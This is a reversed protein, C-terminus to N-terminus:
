SPIARRTWRLEVERRSVHAIQRVHKREDLAARCSGAMRTIGALGDGRGIMLLDFATRWLGRAFMRISANKLLMAIRNERCHRGVFDIGHKDSSAQYRHRVTATSVYRTSFGALRLRWALDVDELYMFFRRDFVGSPLRVQDLASRRYLAAGATPGFIEASAANGDVREGFNRDRATGDAFLQIGTSNLREPEEKFVLTPQFAVVDPTAKRGEELLRALANAELIADSNLLFLWESRTADIGRNCAEAFGLNEGAEIIITAPHAARLAAVSDDRSGNDVVVFELNVGPQAFVSAACELLQDRTNWSVVVVSVETGVCRGYGAFLYGTLSRGATGALARSSDFEPLM